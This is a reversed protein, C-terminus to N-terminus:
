GQVHVPGANDHRELKETIADHIWESQTRGKSAKRLRKYTADNLSAKVTNRKRLNAPIPQRGLKPRTM